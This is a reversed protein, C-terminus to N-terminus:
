LPFLLTQEILPIYYTVWCIFFRLPVMESSVLMIIKKLDWLVFDPNSHISCIELGLTPLFM